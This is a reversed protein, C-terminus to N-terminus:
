HFVTYIAVTYFSLSAITTITLYGFFLAIELLHLKCKQRFMSFHNTIYKHMNRKHASNM